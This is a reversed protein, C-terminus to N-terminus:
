QHVAMIIENEVCLEAKAEERSDFLRAKARSVYSRPGGPPSVYQGKRGDQEDTRKIIYKM